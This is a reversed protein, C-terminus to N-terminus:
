PKSTTKYAVRDVVAQHLLDNLQQQRTNAGTIVALLKTAEALWDTESFRLINGCCAVTSAARGTV